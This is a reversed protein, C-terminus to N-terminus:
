KMQYKERIARRVKEADFVVPVNEPKEEFAVIIFTVYPKRIFIPSGGLPYSTFSGYTTGGYNYMTGYTQYFTPTTFTFNEIDRQNGVIVFYKYGNELTVDACRLLCLDTAREVTTYGNGKFDVKFINEQLKTDSYGGAFGNKQYPTACSSLLLVPFLLLLIFTNGKM